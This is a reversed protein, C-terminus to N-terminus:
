CSPVGALPSNCYDLRTVVFTNVLTKAIDLPICNRIAKIQRLQFFCKRVVNGIHAEFSMTEDIYVGLLRMTSSPKINIGHGVISSHNILRQRGRSTLWM